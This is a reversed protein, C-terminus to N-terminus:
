GERVVLSLAGGLDIVTGPLVATPEGKRLLQPSKGPLTITTGNRSHLDTVVVTDGEVAFRAHSRSIDQNGPIAVLRPLEAGSVQSVSPNRGIIIPQTLQERQNGPLELYIPRVAPTSAAAAAAQQKRRARLAAVDASMVTEGDHDGLVEEAVPTAAPTAAGHGDDDPEEPRIAAEQISRHVTEEFLHSYDVAAAAPTEVPEVQEPEVPQAPEAPEIMTHEIMTHEAPLDSVPPATIIPTEVPEVRQLPEVRAPAEVRVAAGPSFTFGSAWVVGAIIPLEGGNGVVLKELGAISSERWTSVGTGDFADVGRSTWAEVTVEGRVLSHVGDAGSHSLSFSPTSTLGGRMLIDLVSQVPNEAVLAAWLDGVYMAASAEVYLVSQPTAILLWTGPQSPTYSTTM